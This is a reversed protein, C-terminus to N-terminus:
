PNAGMDTGDRAAHKGLSGATLAFGARNAPDSGGVYTASGTISNAGACGSACLNYDSVSLTADGGVGNSTTIGGPIINDRVVADTTAQGAKSTLNLRGERFTNHTITPSNSGGLTLWDTSAQDFVNGDFVMGTRLGDYAVIGHPNNDFYNDRFIANGWDLLQVSDTHPGDACGTEERCDVINSFVNDEILVGASGTVLQMGDSTGDDFTNGRFTYGTQKSSGGNIITVRGEPGDGPDIDNFTNGEFLVDQNNMTPCRSCVNNNGPGAGPNIVLASTFASNRITINNAPASIDGGDITLGDLVLWQATPTSRFQLVLRATAGSQERITVGPSSKTIGSADGFSGYDGSALCVTQGPTAAALQGDFTATTANLNCAAGGGDSALLLTLAVTTALVVAAALAAGIRGGHRRPFAQL